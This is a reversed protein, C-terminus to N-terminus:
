GGPFQHKINGSSCFQLEAEGLGCKNLTQKIREAIQSVKEESL